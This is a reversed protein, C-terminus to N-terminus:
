WALSVNSEPSAFISPIHRDLFSDIVVSSRPIHFLRSFPTCPTTPAHGDSFVINACIPREKQAKFEALIAPRRKGGTLRRSAAQSSATRHRKMLVDSSSMQTISNPQYLYKSYNPLFSRPDQPFEPYNTGRHGNQKRPSTAHPKSLHRTLCVLGLPKLM